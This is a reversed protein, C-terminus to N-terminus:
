NDNENENEEAQLIFEGSMANRSLTNIATIEETKLNVLWRFYLKHSYSVLSYRVEYQFNGSAVLVEWGSDSFTTTVNEKVMFDRAKDIAQKIIYSEHGKILEVAFGEPDKFNKIINQAYTIEKKYNPLSDLRYARKYLDLILEYRKVEYENREKATLKAKVDSFLNRLNAKEMRKASDYNDKAEQINNILITTEEIAQLAKKYGPIVEFTKNFLIFANEFDRKAVLKKGTIIYDEATDMLRRKVYARQGEDYYVALKFNSEANAFDSETIEQEAKRIYIQAIADKTPKTNGVPYEILELLLRLGEESDKALADTIYLPTFVVVIKKAEREYYNGEYSSYLQKYLDWAELYNTNDRSYAHEIKKYLIEPTFRSDPIELLAQDYFQFGKDINGKEFERLGFDYYCKALLTDTAPSNALIAFRTALVLNDGTYARIALQHYSKSRILEASTVYAGNKSEKLYTDIEEVAVTYRETYYSSIANRYRYTECGFLSVFLLAMLGLKFILNM